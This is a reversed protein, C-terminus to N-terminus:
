RGLRLRASEKNEFADDLKDGLLTAHAQDLIQWVTELGASGM